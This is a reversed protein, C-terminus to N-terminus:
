HFTKKRSPIPLEQSVRMEQVALLKQGGSYYKAFRAEGTQRASIARCDREAKM